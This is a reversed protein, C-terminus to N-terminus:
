WSSPTAARGQLRDLMSNLGNAIAQLDDKDRLKVRGDMNDRTIGNMFQTLKHTPGAIKHSRPISFLVFAAALWMTCLVYTLTSLRTQHQVLETIYDPAGVLMAQMTNILPAFPLSLCVAIAVIYLVGALAYRFQFRKDILEKKRRGKRFIM